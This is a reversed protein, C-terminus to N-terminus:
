SAQGPWPMELGLHKTGGASRFTRLPWLPDTYCRSGDLPGLLFLPARDAGKM